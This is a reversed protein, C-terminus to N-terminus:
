KENRKPMALQKTEIIKNTYILTAAHSCILYFYKWKKGFYLDLSELATAYWFTWHVITEKIIVLFRSSIKLKQNLYM